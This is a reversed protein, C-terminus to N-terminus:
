AGVIRRCERVLSEIQGDRRLSAVAVAVCCMAPAILAYGGWRGGAIIGAAGGSLFLLLTLVLTSAKYGDVKHHRRRGIMLGLDTITGTFHTTRVPTGCFSSTLGNQLGLASAAFFAEVSQAEVGTATIMDRVFTDEVGAAAVLLLVAEAILVAAPRVGAVVSVDPLIVGAILAGLFFGTLVALLVHGEYLWPNATKMGLQTTVGTLNGVPMAFILLAVANVFGANLALLASTSLLIKRLSLRREASDTDPQM